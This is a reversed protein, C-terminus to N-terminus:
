KRVLALLLAVVLTLLTVIFSGFQILSLLDAVTM